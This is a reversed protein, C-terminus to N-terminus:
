VSKIVGVVKTRMRPNSVVIIAYLIAGFGVTGALSIFPSVYHPWTLKYIAICMGVSSLVYWIIDRFPVKIKVETQLYIWHIATNAGFSILTALAAGIVGLLSILLLNAFINIIITIATARAGFEPRGIGESVRALVRHPAQLVKETMIIILIVGGVPHIVNFLVEMIRDALVLTGFLAPISIFLAASLADPVISKIKAYGNDAAISSIEPFIVNAISQAFLMVVLSVRWALEYIGVFSSSVFFGLVVIDIWSYLRGGAQSIFYHKSYSFISSVNFELSRSIPTSVKIVAWLLSIFYSLLFAILLAIIGYGVFLLTSGMIIWTVRRLFLLTGTEDVRHEGILVREFLEFYEKLFLGLILFYIIDYGVYNNVRAKFVLLLLCVVVLLGTKILISTALVGHNGGQESLRKEVAGRIGLDAVLALVGVLSQFLFFVGMNSPGLIQTFYAIAAFSLVNAGIRSIFLKATSRILNLKPDEKINDFRKWQM